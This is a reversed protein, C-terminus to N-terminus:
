RATVPIGGSTVFPNEAFAMYIFNGGSANNEPGTTRVKFGNSLFDHTDEIIETTTSNPYLVREVPNFPSRVDDRTRWNGTSDTRKAILFAPKFGTYIFPGDTSGNGTYKGFKSYGKIEAFCYAIISDGSGNTGNYDGLSFLTSNLTVTTNGLVNVDDAEAATDDLYLINPNAQSVFAAQHYVAWKASSSDIRNKFIIMAPKAGLGHGITAGATANGTYSVISFGATPNASVTSTITGSTNSVTTNAGLWNWSAYTDGSGNVGSESIVTFGDSNFATLTTTQGTAEADTSNSFLTNQVGRVADYLRHGVAGNDRRKIWVWDPKFGVGTLSNSSGTGTYTVTNFYSSGKNITTYPM